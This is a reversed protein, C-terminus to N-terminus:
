CSSPWYQEAIPAVQLAFTSWRMEVKTDVSWLFRNILKRKDFISHPLRAEQRQYVQNKRTPEVRPKESREPM